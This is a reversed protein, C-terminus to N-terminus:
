LRYTLWFVWFAWGIIQRTYNLVGWSTIVKSVEYVYTLKPSTLGLCKIKWSSKQQVTNGVQKGFVYDIEIFTAQASEDDGEKSWDLKFETGTLTLESGHDLMNFPGNVWNGTEPTLARQVDDVLLAVRTYRSRFDDPPTVKVTNQLEKTFGTWSRHCATMKAYLARLPVNSVM